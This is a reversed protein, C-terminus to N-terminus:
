KDEQKIIPSPLGLIILSLISLILGIGSILTPIEDYLLLGIIFAAIPESNMLISALGAEIYEMSMNYLMYPLIGTFFAQAILAIIHSPSVSAYEYILSWKVIPATAILVTLFFYFTITLSHYGKSVSVKTFLTLLASFLASLLGIIIGKIPVQSINSEWFGSLMSCGIIALIICIIKIPTIKEGYFLNLLPLAFIPAMALLVAAFSLSLLSISLNYCINLGLVGILGGGILAPLSKPSVRFLEKDKIAMIIFLIPVAGILRCTLITIPDSGFEHLPRVFIGASGFSAGAIIPFLIALRKM